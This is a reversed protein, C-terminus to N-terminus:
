NRAYKDCWGSAQVPSEVTKCATPPQFVKCSNCGHGGKPHTQYEVAKQSSKAQVAALAAASVGSFALAGAALGLIRRRSATRLASASITVM